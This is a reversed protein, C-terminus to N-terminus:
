YIGTLLVLYQDRSDVVQDSLRVTLTHIDLTIQPISTLLEHLQDVEKFSSLYITSFLSRRSPIHFSRSVMACNKLSTDDGHLEDIICDVIEQPIAIPLIM